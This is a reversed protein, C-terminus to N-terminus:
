AEVKVKDIRRGDLSRVTFTVAHGTVSEGVAMFDRRLELMLGAISESDGKIDSFYDESLGLVRELDNLHTKGEFVFTHDDIRVYPSEESDSEDSIEGVVEELIDELSVVGITSGYEDVVVAIHVKNSQFEELLDAIKKNEPIFYPKRLLKQWEFSDGEAIYSLLDKVYLVGQINDLSEGYAPIRSFGSEIIVRKVEDYGSRIDLAVIDMRPKMIQSVDTNVFSVIGSLMQKEEETQNGTIELANSLENISIVRRKGGLSYNIFGGLKMLVWSLPKFVSKLVLLVPAMVRAVGLPNYSSFIKPIIEGFLLLVFTVVIVKIAFEAGSSKFSVLIDIVRNSLIVICINVLNNVILITALLYDQMSLLKLIANDARSKHRKVTNINSPSLSFFATEAGSVMASVMLLLLTVILFTIVGPDFPHWELIASFM